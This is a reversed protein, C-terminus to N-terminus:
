HLERFTFRGESMQMKVINFVSVRLDKRRSNKDEKMLNLSSDGLGVCSWNGIPRIIPVGDDKIKYVEYLQYYSLSDKRNVEYIFIDDDM